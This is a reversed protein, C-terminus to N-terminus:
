VFMYLGDRSSDYTVGCRLLDVIEYETLTEIEDDTVEFWINYHESNCILDQGNDRPFKHALLMMAHVDSRSCHKHKIDKFSGFNDEESLNEFLEINSM